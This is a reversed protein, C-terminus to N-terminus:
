CRLVIAALASPIAGGPGIPDRDVHGVLGADFRLSPEATDAAPLPSPKFDSGPPAARVTARQDSSTVLPTDVCTGCNAPAVARSETGSVAGGPADPADEDSHDDACCRSFPTEFHVTGDAEECLNLPAGVGLGGHLLYIALTFNAILRQVSM